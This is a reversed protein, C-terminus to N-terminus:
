QLLSTQSTKHKIKWQSNILTFRHLWTSGELNQAFLNSDKPFSLGSPWLKIARHSMVWEIQRESLLAIEAQRQQCVPYVETEWTERQILRVTRSTGQHTLPTPQVTAGLFTHWTGTRPDTFAEENPFLTKAPTILNLIKLLFWGM